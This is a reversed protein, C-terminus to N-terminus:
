HYRIGEFTCIWDFKTSLLLMVIMLSPSMYVELCYGFLAPLFIKTYFLSIDLNEYNVKAGESFCKRLIDPGKVDEVYLMREM